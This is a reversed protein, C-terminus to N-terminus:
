FSDSLGPTPLPYGPLSIALAFAWCCSCFHLSKTPSCERPSQSCHSLPFLRLHIGPDQAQSAPLLPPNLSAWSTRAVSISWHPSTLTRWTPTTWVQARQWHSYPILPPLPRLIRRPRSTSISTKSSSPTIFIACPLLLPLYPTHGQQVSPQSCKSAMNGTELAKNRQESTTLRIRFSTDNYVFLLLQFAFLFLLCKCGLGMMWWILSATKHRRGAM